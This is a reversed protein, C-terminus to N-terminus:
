DEKKRLKKRYVLSKIEQIKPMEIKKKKEKNERDQWSQGLNIFEIM